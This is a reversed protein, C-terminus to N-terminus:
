DANEDPDLFAPRDLEFFQGGLGVFRWEDDAGDEGDFDMTYTSFVFFNRRQTISNVYARALGGGVAALARGAEGEGVERLVLNESQEQIFTNFDTRDPNFVLLVIVVLSLAVLATRM